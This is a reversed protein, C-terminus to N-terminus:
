RDVGKHGLKRLRSRAERAAEMNENARERAERLSAQLERIQTMVHQETPTEGARPMPPVQWRTIAIIRGEERVVEDDPGTAPAVVDDRSTCMPLCMASVIYVTGLVPDPLNVLATYRKRVSDIHPLPSPTAEIEETLRAINGSAPYTISEGGRTRCVIAHPTLNVVKQPIPM